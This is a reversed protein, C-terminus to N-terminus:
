QVLKTSPRLRRAANDKRLGPDRKEAEADDKAIAQEIAEL